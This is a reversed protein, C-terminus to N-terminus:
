MCEGLDCRKNNNADTYKRCQGPYSCGRSCRVVCASSTTAGTTTTAKVPTATAAATAAVTQTGQVAAQTIPQASAASSAATVDAAAGAATDAAAADLPAASTLSALTDNLASGLALTATVGVIGMLKLFERRDVKATVPVAAPQLVGPRAAPAAPNFIHRKAITVIWRWHLGIKLVVLLLTVVSVGVHFARWAFYETLPLNLWTSIVLGNLVTLFLGFM